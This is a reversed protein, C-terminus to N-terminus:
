ERHAFERIVLSFVPFKDTKPGTRRLGSLQFGAVNSAKEPFNGLERFLSNLIRILFAFERIRKRVLM